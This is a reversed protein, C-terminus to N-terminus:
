VNLPIKQGVQSEMNKKMALVWDVDLKIECEQWKVIEKISGDEFYLIMKGAEKDIAHGIVKIKKWFSFFNFFLHRRYCFFYPSNM